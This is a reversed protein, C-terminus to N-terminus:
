GRVREARHAVHEPVARATALDPAPEPAGLMTRVPVVGAWAADATVDDDEDAPPGSRVKVSAEGLDLALVSTAALERRTPPRAHDWAGPTLHEVITRLARQKEEDDTVRRATGHAVASRYNMSFSFVARAHVIGDLHTVTVCAPMEDRMLYRAGSSGHLYLVDGDRGYATPLVVPAGDSVFGLHCVLGADLVDHLETRDSRGREAHRGLTSRPTPSLTVTM